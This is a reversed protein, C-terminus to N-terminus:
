SLEEVYLGILHEKNKSKLMTQGYKSMGLFKDKSCKDLGPSIRRLDAASILICTDLHYVNKLYYWKGNEINKLRTKQGRNYAKTKGNSEVALLANSIKKGNEIYITTIDGNEDVYETHMTIAAREASIKDMNKNGIFTNEKTKRIKNVIEPSKTPNNNGSFAISRKERIEDSIIVNSLFFKARSMQIGDIDIKELRYKSINQNREQYLKNFEDLPILEDKSIRKNNFDSKHMSVFAHTTAVHSIAKALLFHALYHNGYSLEAKNWNYEKLNSYKNFPLTKARPLIHHSSSKGNIKNPLNNDLCFEIYKHLFEIDIISHCLNDTFLKLLTYKETSM